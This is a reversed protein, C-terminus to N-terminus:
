PTLGIYIGVLWREELRARLREFAAPCCAIQLPVDPDPRYGGHRGAYSVLELLSGFDGHDWNCEPPLEQLRNPQLTKSRNTVHLALKKKTIYTSKMHILYMYVYHGWWSNCCSWAYIRKWKFRSTGQLWRSCDWALGPETTWRGRTFTLCPCPLRIFSRPIHFIVGNHKRLIQYTLNVLEQKQVDLRNGIDIGSLSSVTGELEWCVQQDLFGNSWCTIPCSRQWLRQSLSCVVAFRQWWNKAPNCRSLGEPTYWTRQPPLFFPNSGCPWLYWIWCVQYM